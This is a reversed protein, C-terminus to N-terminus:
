GALECMIASSVSQPCSWVLFFMSERLLREAPHGSVFGAGKAATLAAQATRVALSTAQARLAERDSAESGTRAAKQLRANYLSAEAAFGAAFPEIASRGVAEKHLLAISANATGLALATTALGGTRMSGSAPTAIVAAPQVDCFTVSSTRSGSLALMRMPPAITLGPAETSVIFFLNKGSDDVAGTVITDSSDAGTVWPCVGSLRWADGRRNAKLSPSGLHQQSTSLQSIGVTTCTDGRALAPLRNARIDTPGDAIIRCASAWQSLALATTLCKEAIATLMQLLTSEDAQTGGCNTPIFAAMAGQRALIAFAGSHWPGEDQTRDACSSIADCLLELTETDPLPRFSSCMNWLIGEPQCLPELPPGIM